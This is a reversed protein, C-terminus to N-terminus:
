AVPEFLERITNVAREGEARDPVTTEDNFGYYDSDGIVQFVLGDRRPVFAVGKYILGYHIAPEPIARTLQGRV